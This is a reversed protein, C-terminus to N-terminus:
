KCQQGGKTKTIAENNKQIIENIDKNLNNLMGAWHNVNNNALALRERVEKISAELEELTSAIPRDM